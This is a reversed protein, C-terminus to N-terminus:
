DSASEANKQCCGAADKIRDTSMSQRRRELHQRAREEMDDIVKKDINEFMTLVMQIHEEKATLPYALHPWLTECLKPSALVIARPSLTRVRQPHKRIVLVRDIAGFPIPGAHWCEVIPIKTPNLGVEAVAQDYSVLPLPLAKRRIVLALTVPYHCFFFQPWPRSRAAAKSVKRWPTSFDFLAVAPKITSYANKSQPYTFPFSGTNPIIAAVDCIGKYGDFGTIHILDKGLRKLIGQLFPTIEGM